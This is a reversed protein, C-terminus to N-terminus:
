DRGQLRMGIALLQFRDDVMVHRITAGPLQPLRRKDFDPVVYRSWAGLIGAGIVKMAALGMSLEHAKAVCANATRDYARELDSQIRASYIRVVAHV